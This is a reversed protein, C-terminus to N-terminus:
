QPISIPDGYLCDFAAYTGASLCALAQECLKPACLEAILLVGEALLLRFLGRRFRWEEVVHQGLGSWDGGIAMIRRQNRRAALAERTFVLRARHFAGRDCQDVAGRMAAQSLLLTLSTGADPLQDLLRM